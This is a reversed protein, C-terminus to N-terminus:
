KCAWSRMCWLASIRAAAAAAAAQEAAFSEPQTDVKEEPQKTRVNEKLNSSFDQTQQKTESTNQNRIVPVAESANADEPKQVHEPQVASKEPQMPQVRGVEPMEAQKEEGNQMQVATQEEVGMMQSINEGTESMGESM